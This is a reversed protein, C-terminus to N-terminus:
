IKKVSEVHGYGSKEAMVNVVNKSGVFIGSGLKNNVGNKDAHKASDPESNFHIEDEPSKINGSKYNNFFKEKKTKKFVHRM